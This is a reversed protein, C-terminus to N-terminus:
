EGKTLGPQPAKALLGLDEAERPHETVWDHHRQCLALCNGEVLYGAQWRGRSIVEHVELVARDASPSSCAGPAVGRAQCTRDRGLVGARVEARRPAEQRRKASQAPLRKRSRAQWERTKDLNARLPKKRELTM